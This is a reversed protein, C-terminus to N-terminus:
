VAPPLAATLSLSLSSFRHFLHPPSLSLFVTRAHTATGIKRVRAHASRQQVFLAVFAFFVFLTYLLPLSATHPSHSLSLSLGCSASAGSSLCRRPANRSVTFILAVVGLRRRTFSSASSSSSCPERERMDEGVPVRACRRKVREQLVVVAAVLLRRQPLKLPLPSPPPTTQLLWHDDTFLPGLGQRSTCTALPLSLSLAVPFEFLLPSLSLAHYISFSLTRARPATRIETTLVASHSLSFSLSLSCCGRRLRCLSVMVCRCLRAFGRRETSGQQEGVRVRCHYKGKQNRSEQTGEQKCQQSRAPKTIRMGTLQIRGVSNERKVM